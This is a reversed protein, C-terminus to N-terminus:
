GDQSVHACAVHPVQPLITLVERNDLGTSPLKSIERRREASLQTHSVGIVRKKTASM